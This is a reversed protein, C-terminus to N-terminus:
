KRRVQQVQLTYPASSTVTNENNRATCVYVGESEVTVMTIRLYGQTSNEVFRTDSPLAASDKTWSYTIVGRLTAFCNLQISLGEQVPETHSFTIIAPDPEVPSPSLILSYNSGYFLM